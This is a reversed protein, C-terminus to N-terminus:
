NEYKKVKTKFEEHVDEMLKKNENTPSSKYNNYCSNYITFLNFLEIFNDDNIVNFMEGILLFDYLCKKFFDFELENKKITWDILTPSILNENVFGDRNIVNSWVESLNKNADEDVLLRMNWFDLTFDSIREYSILRVDFHRQDLMIKKYLDNIEKSHGELVQVFSKKNIILLFGKINKLYNSYVSKQFIEALTEENFSNTKSFYILRYKM